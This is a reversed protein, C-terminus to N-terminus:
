LDSVRILRLRGDWDVTYRKVKARKLHKYLTNDCINALSLATHATVLPGFTPSNITM